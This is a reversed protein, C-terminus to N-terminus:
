PAPRAPTASINSFYFLMFVYVGRAAEAARPTYIILFNRKQRYRKKKQCLLALLFLKAFLFARPITESTAVLSWPEAKPIRLSKLFLKLLFKAGNLANSL